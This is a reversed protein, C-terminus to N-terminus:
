GLVKWLGCRSPLVMTERTVLLTIRSTRLLSIYTWPYCPEDIKLNFSSDSGSLNSQMKLTVRANKKYVKYIQAQAIKADLDLVGLHQYLAQRSTNKPRRVLKLGLDRPISIRSEPRQFYLDSAASSQEGSDLPIIALSKITPQYESRSAEDSKSKKKTVFSTSLLKSAKTQWDDNTNSDSFLKSSARQCDAQVRDLMERYSLVPVGLEKLSEYSTKDYCSSIYVSEPLDAFLPEGDDDLFEKPLLRLKAPKCLSTENGNWLIQQDQLGDIILPRLDGWFEVAVGSAPLYSIWEYRLIDENCFQRVAECFTEAIHDRLKENRPSDQIGERSAQTDFDSQM